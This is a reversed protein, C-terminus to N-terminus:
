SSWGDLCPPEARVIGQHINQWGGRLIVQSLARLILSFDTLPLRQCVVGRQGSSRLPANFTLFRRVHYAGIAEVLTVCEETVCMGAIM